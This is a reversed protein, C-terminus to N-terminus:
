ARDSRWFRWRSRGSRSRTGDMENYEPCKELEPKVNEKEKEDEKPVGSSGSDGKGSEPAFSVDLKVISCLGAKYDRPEVVLNLCTIRRNSTVEFEGTNYQRMLIHTRPNVVKSIMAAGTTPAPKLEATITATEPTTEAM